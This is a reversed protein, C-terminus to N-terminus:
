YKSLIEEVSHHWAPMQVGEVVVGPRGAAAVPMAALILLACFLAKIKM